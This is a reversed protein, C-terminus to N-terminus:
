DPRTPQDRDLRQLVFFVYGFAGPHRRYVDIERESRGAVALALPDAGHRARFRELEAALPVYYDRWWGSAPLVLDGVLRYGAADVARRRTPIDEVEAGGAAFFERV